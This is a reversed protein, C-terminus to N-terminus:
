FFEHQIILVKEITHRCVRPIFQFLINQTVTVMELLYKGAIVLCYIVSVYFVRRSCSCGSYISHAGKGVQRKGYAKTEFVEAKCTVQM